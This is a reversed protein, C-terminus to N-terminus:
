GGHLDSRPKYAAVVDAIERRSALPIILGELTQDSLEFIEDAIRHGSVVGAYRNGVRGQADFEIFFNALNTLVTLHLVAAEGNLQNRLLDANRTFALRRTGSTTLIKVGDLYLRYQTAIRDVARLFQELDSGTAWYISYHDLYQEAQFLKANGPNKARSKGEEVL